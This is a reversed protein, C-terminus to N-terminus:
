GCRLSAVKGDQGLVINLRRSNYDLTAPCNHCLVRAEAPLSARDIGEGPTGVLSQHEAMQCTDPAPRSMAERQAQASYRELERYTMPQDEACAALLAPVLLALVLRKM